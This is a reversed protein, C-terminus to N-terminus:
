VASYIFSKCESMFICQAAPQLPFLKGLTLLSLTQGIVFGSQHFLLLASAQAFNQVFRAQEGMRCSFNGYQPARWFHRNNREMILIGQVKQSTSQSKTSFFFSLLTLAFSLSVFSTSAPQSLIWWLNCHCFGNEEDYVWLQGNKSRQSFFGSKRGNM